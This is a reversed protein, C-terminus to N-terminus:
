EQISTKRNVNILHQLSDVLTELALREKEPLSRIASALQFAPDDDLSGTNSSLLDAIEPMISEPEVQIVKAIKLVADLNLPIRGRLYQSFAGQTGWGCLHAVKEQTLGLEHKRQNWLNELRKAADLEQPTLKRKAM